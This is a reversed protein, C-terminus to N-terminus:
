SALTRREDQRTFTVHSTGTEAGIGEFFAEAYSDDVGTTGAGSTDGFVRARFTRTAVYAATLRGWEESM